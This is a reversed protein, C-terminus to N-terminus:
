LRVAPARERAWGSGKSVFPRTSVKPCNTKTLLGGGECQSSGLGRRSVGESLSM